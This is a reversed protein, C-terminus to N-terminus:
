IYEAPEHRSLKIVGKNLLKVIESDIVECELSNFHKLSPPHLQYPKTEFEICQGSVISLIESDSTLLKWKDLHNALIGPKFARTKHELHEVLEPILSEYGGVQIKDLKDIVTPIEKTKDAREPPQLRELTTQQEEM